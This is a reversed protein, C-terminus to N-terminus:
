GADIVQCWREPTVPPAATQQTLVLASSGGSDEICLIKGLLRGEALEQVWPQFNLIVVVCTVVLATMKRRHLTLLVLISVM